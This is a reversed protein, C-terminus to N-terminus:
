QPPEEIYDPKAQKYKEKKVAKRMNILTKYVTNAAFANVLWAPVIGGPEAHIQYVVEVMGDGQPTLRWFGKLLPVRVHSKQAPIYEPFNTMTITATSTIKDQTLLFNVVADRDTLPWLANIIGHVYTEQSKPRSLIRAGGSNPVWERNSEVDDLLAVVSSLSSRIKTIGKVEVFKSAEVKRKYVKVNPKDLALNWAAETHATYPYLILPILIVTLRAAMTIIIDPPKFYAIADPIIYSIVNLNIPAPPRFRVSM